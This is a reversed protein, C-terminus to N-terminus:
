SPMYVAPKNLTHLYSVYHTGFTTKCTYQMWWSCGESQVTMHRQLCYWTCADRCAYPLGDRGNTAVLTLM